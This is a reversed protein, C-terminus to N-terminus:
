LLRLTRKQAGFWWGLTAIIVRGECAHEPTRPQDVLILFRDPPNNERPPTWRVKKAARHAAAARGECAHEPTRRSFLGSSQKRIRSVRKGEGGREGM